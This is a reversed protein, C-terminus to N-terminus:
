KESTCRYNQELAQLSKPKAKEECSLKEVEKAESMINFKSCGGLVLVIGIMYVLIKM